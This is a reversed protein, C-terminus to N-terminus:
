NSTTKPKKQDVKIKHTKLGYVGNKFGSIKNQQIEKITKLLNHFSFFFFM